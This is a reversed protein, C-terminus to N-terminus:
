MTLKSLIDCDSYLSNVGINHLSVQQSDNTKTLCILMTICTNSHPHNPPLPRMYRADGPCGVSVPKCNPLTQQGQLLYPYLPLPPFKKMEETEERENIKREERGREKMEDVIEWRGKEPLRYLIIKWRGKEPLCYLIVWLPQCTM